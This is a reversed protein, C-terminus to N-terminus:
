ELNAHLRFMEEESSGLEKMLMIVITDCLLWTTQEFANGMPQISNIGSELESKPTNGPVQIVVDAMGGIFSEPFITIVSVEAGKEKAKAATVKLSGTEGSGSIIGLLDGGQISPTTPEGVFFVKLGLHMLRNAFARAVFGSRGAGSIFIRKAKLLSDAFEQIQEQQIQKANESLEKLVQKLIISESM